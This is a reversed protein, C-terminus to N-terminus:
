HLYIRIICLSKNSAPLINLIDFFPEIMMTTSINLSTHVATLAPVCKVPYRLMYTLRSFTLAIKSINTIQTKKVMEEILNGYHVM